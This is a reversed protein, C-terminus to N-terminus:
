FTGEGHLFAGIIVLALGKLQTFFPGKADEWHCILYILSVPSIFLCCLGWLISTRFTAVIFKIGGFLFILLGLVVLVRSFNLLLM